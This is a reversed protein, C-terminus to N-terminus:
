IAYQNFSYSQLRTNDNSSCDIRTASGATATGAGYELRKAQTSDIYFLNTKWGAVDWDTANDTSVQTINGFNAM